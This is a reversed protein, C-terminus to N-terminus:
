PTSSDLAARRPIPSSNARSRSNPLLPTRWSAGHDESVVVPYSDSRGRRTKAGEGYLLTRQGLALLHWPPTAGAPLAIQRSDFVVTLPTWFHGDDRSSSVRVVGHQLTSVVITGDVRAVDLPYRLEADVGEHRPPEAARCRATHPCVFLKVSSSEDQRTATVLATADCSAALIQTNAPVLPATYRLVGGRYSEVVIADGADSLAFRFGDQADSVGCSAVLAGLDGLGRESWTVGGDTTHFAGAGAGKDLVATWGGDQSLTVRSRPSSVPLGRGLAPTPLEVPHAAEKAGTSPKVLAAYDEGFLYGAKESLRVLEERGVGLDRLTLVSVGPAASGSVAADAAAGGYEVFDWARAQHADRSARSGTANFAAAACAAFPKEAAPSAVLRRHALKWFESPNDRLATPGLPGVMCVGYDALATAVDRLQWAARARPVLDGIVLAVVSLLLVYRLRFPLPSRASPPAPEPKSQRRLVPDHKGM